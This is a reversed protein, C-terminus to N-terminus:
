GRDPHEGARGPDVPRENAWRLWQQAMQLWAVKDGPNQSIEAIRECEEANAHYEDLKRM